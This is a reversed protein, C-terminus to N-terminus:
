NRISQYETAAIQYKMLFLFSFSLFVSKIIFFLFHLFLVHFCSAANNIRFEGWQGIVWEGRQGMVWEVWQGMIWEDWQCM